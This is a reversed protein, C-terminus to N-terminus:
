AKGTKPREAPGKGGSSLTEPSWDFEPPNMVPDIDLIRLRNVDFWVCEMLKGDRDQGPHVTAQICGYLDFCISTIVGHFGTVRDEVRLGLMKLHLKINEM